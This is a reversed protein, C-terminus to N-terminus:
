GNQSLGLESRLGRLDDDAVDLIQAACTGCYNKSGGGSADRVVLCRVGKAIQHEKPKQHCKRKARATEISLNGLVHRVQAMVSNGEHVARGIDEVLEDALLDLRGLAEEAQEANLANRSNSGIGVSENIRENLLRIAIQSNAAPPRVQFARALDRGQRSLGTDIALSALRSM